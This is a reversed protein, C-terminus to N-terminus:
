PAFRLTHTTAVVDTAVEGGSGAFTIGPPILSASHGILRVTVTPTDTCYLPAPSTAGAPSACPQPDHEEICLAVVRPGLAREVDAPTPPCPAPACTTANATACWPVVDTAFLAQSLHGAVATTVTRADPAAVGTATVGASAALRAAQQVASVEASNQVAWLGADITAFFCLFFLPAVFAFEVTAQSRCRRRASRMSGRGHEGEGM